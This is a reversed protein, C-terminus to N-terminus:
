ESEHRAERSNATFRKTATMSSVADLFRAVLEPDESAVLRVDDAAPGPRALLPRSCFGPRTAVLWVATDAGDATDRLLPRMLLRFVPLADAVGSTEVWGPHMSEVRIDSDQWHRRGRM